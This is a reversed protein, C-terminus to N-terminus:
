HGDMFELSTSDRLCQSKARVLGSPKPYAASALAAPRRNSGFAAAASTSLRASASLEGSPMRPTLIRPM